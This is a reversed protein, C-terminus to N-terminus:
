LGAAECNPAKWGVSLHGAAVAVAVSVPKGNKETMNRYPGEDWVIVTGAGYERSPITGEFTAYDLPHDEVHVALRKVPTTPPGKPV